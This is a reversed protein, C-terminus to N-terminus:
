VSKRYLTTRGIGLARAAASKSGQHYLCAFQFIEREMEEFLRLQGHENILTLCPSHSLNKPHSEPPPSSEHLGAPLKGYQLLYLCARQLGWMNDEFDTNALMSAMSAFPASINPMGEYLFSFKKLSHEALLPIDRLRYKLPQLTIYEYYHQIYVQKMLSIHRAVVPNYAYAPLSMLCLLHIKGEYLHSYNNMQHQFRYIDPLETTSPIHVCMANFGHRAVREMNMEQLICHGVNYPRLTYAAQQQAVIGAVLSKGTGSAGEIWVIDSNEEICRRARELAKRTISDGTVFSEFTHPALSPQALPPSLAYLVNM